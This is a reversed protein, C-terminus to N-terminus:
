VLMGVAMNPYAVYIQSSFILSDYQLDFNDYYHFSWSVVQLFWIGHTSNSNKLCLTSAVDHAVNLIFYSSIFYAPNICSIFIVQVYKQFM